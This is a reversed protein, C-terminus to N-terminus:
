VCLSKDLGLELTQPGSKAWGLKGDQQKDWPTCALQVGPPQCWWSTPRAFEHLGSSITPSADAAAHWGALKGQAPLTSSSPITALSAPPPKRPGTPLSSVLTKSRRLSMMWGHRQSRMRLTMSRGPLMRM